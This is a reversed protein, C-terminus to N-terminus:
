DGEDTYGHVEGRGERVIRFPRYLETAGNARSMLVPRKLRCQHLSKQIRKQPSVQAPVTESIRKMQHDLALHMPTQQRLAALIHIWFVLMWRQAPLGFMAARLCCVGM